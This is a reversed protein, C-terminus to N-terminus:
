VRPLKVLKASPIEKQQVYVWQLDVCYSEGNYIM